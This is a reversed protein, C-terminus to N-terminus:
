IIIQRIATERVQSHASPVLIFLCPALGRSPWNGPSFAWIVTSLHLPLATVLTSRPPQLSKTFPLRSSAKFFSYSNSLFGPCPPVQLKSLGVLMKTRPSIFIFLLASTTLSLGQSPSWPPGPWGQHHHPVVLTQLLYSMILNTKSM